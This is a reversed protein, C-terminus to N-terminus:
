CAQREASAGITNSVCYKALSQRRTTRGSPGEDCAAFYDHVDVLRSRMGSLRKHLVVLRALCVSFVLLVVGRWM